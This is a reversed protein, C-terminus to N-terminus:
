RGRVRRTRDARPCDGGRSASALRGRSTRSLRGGRAIQPAPASQHSPSCGHGRVLPLGHFRQRAPQVEVALLQPDGVGFEARTASPSGPAASRARSPSGPACQAPGERPFRATSPAWIPASSGPLCVCPTTIHPDGHTWALLWSRCNRSPTKTTILVYYGAQQIGTSRRPRRTPPGPGRGGRASAEPRSAPM